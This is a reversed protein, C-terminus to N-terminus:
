DFGVVERDTKKREKRRCVNGKGIQKGRDKRWKFCTSSM